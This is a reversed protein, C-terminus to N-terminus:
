NGLINLYFGKLGLDRSPFLQFWTSDMRTGDRALLIAVCIKTIVFNFPFLYIIKLPKTQSIM